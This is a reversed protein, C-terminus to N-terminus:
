LRSVPTADALARDTLRRAWVVAEPGHSPGVIGDDYVTVFTEEGDDTQAVVLGYPLPCGTRDTDVHDTETTPPSDPLAADILVVTADALVSPDIETDNPLAAFASPADAVAALRVTTQEDRLSHEPSHGGDVRGVLGAGELERVARGVTSRSVDLAATPNRGDTTGSGVAGLM